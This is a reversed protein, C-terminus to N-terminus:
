SDAADDSCSAVLKPCSGYARSTEAWRRREVWEVPETARLRASRPMEPRVKWTCRLKVRRVIPSMASVSGSSENQPSREGSADVRM